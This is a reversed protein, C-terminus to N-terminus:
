LIQLYVKLIARMPELRQIDSNGPIRRSWAIIIEFLNQPDDKTYTQHHLIRAYLLIDLADVDTPM